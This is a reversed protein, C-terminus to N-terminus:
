DWTEATLSDEQAGAVQVLSFDKGSAVGPTADWVCFAARLTVMDVPLTVDKAVVGFSGPPATANLIGGYNYLWQGNGWRVQLSIYPNVFGKASNMVMSRRLAGEYHVKSGQLPGGPLDQIWCGQGAALTLNIQPTGGARAGDVGATAPTWTWDPLLLNTSLPPPAAALRLLINRAQASGPTANWVCFMTRLTIMDNPLRIDRAESIWPGGPASRSNLVGGYNYPWAGDAKRVQLSIYPNAFPPNIQNMVASKRMEAEFRVVRSRLAVGDLDQYWCARAPAAAVDIGLAGDVIQGAAGPTYAGYRWGDLKLRNVGGDFYGLLQVEASDLSTLDSQQDGHAPTYTRVVCNPAAGIILNTAFKGGTGATTGMITYPGGPQNGCLVEYYGGDGTYAIPTWSVEMTSATLSQVRVNGPAVTQTAAWDPAKAAVCPDAAATLRNFGLGLASEVKCVGAPITGSLQNNELWIKYLHAPGSLDPISGSLQNNHLGITLLQPLYSLDPITGTLHNDPAWFLDLATLRSLDPISGSLHNRALEISRLKAPLQHPIPGTLQNSTLNLWELSRPFTTPISGSLENDSLVLGKLHILASFNPISGSLHNDYLFLYQLSSLASFDPIPGTLENAALWLEKLSTMDWLDPLPGVLNSFWRDIKVVHGPVADCTVGTWSCPHQTANWRNTAADRWNAGNTSNWLAVLAECEAQPIETQTACNTVDPAAKSSPAQLVLVAGLLMLLITLKTKM